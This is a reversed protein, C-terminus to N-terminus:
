SGEIELLTIYSPAIAGATQFRVRGNNNFTNPRGQTKYTIANTTAPSDLYHIPVYIGNKVTTASSVEIFGIYHYEELETTDRFLKMQGHGLSTDIDLLISQSIMVLIKSSASSPTITGTLTTDKFGTDSITTDTTTLDQVVQLVKGLSVSSALDAATVVGDQVLSVGTTGNLELAM